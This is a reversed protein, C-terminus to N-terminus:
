SMWMPLTDFDRVSHTPDEHKQSRYFHPVAPSLRGARLSRPVNGATVLLSKNQKKVQNSRDEGLM